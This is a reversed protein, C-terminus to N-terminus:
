AKNHIWSVDADANDDDDEEKMGTMTSAKDVIYGLLKIEKASFSQQQRDLTDAIMGTRGQAQGMEKEMAAIETMLARQVPSPRNDLMALLLKLSARRLSSAKAHTNMADFVTGVIKNATIARKIEEGRSALECMSMMCGEFVQSNDVHTEMTQVILNAAHVGM